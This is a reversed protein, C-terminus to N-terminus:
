LEETSSLVHLAEVRRRLRQVEGYAQSALSFSVGVLVGIGVRAVGTDLAGVVGFAVASSAVSLLSILPSSVGNTRAITDIACARDAVAKAIRDGDPPAVANM